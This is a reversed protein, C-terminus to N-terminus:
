PRLENSHHQQEVEKTSKREQINNFHSPIHGGKIPSSSPDRQFLGMGMHFSCVVEEANIIGVDRGSGVM